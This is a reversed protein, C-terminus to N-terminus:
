SRAVARTAEVDDVVGLAAAGPYPSGTKADLRTVDGGEEDTAIVLTNREGHLAATLQQLQVSERINDAFLVVGGLGGAARRLLWAPAEPGRFSGLICGVALEHLRDM